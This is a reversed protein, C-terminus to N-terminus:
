QFALQLVGTAVMLPAVLTLALCLTFTIVDVTGEMKERQYFPLPIFSSSAPFSKVFSYFGTMVELAVFNNFPKEGSLDKLIHSYIPLRPPLPM